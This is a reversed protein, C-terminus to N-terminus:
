RDKPKKGIKKWWNFLGKATSKFLTFVYYLQTVSLLTVPPLLNSVAKVLGSCKAATHIRKDVYYTLYNSM